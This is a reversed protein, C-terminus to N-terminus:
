RRQEREEFLMRNIKDTSDAQQKFMFVMFVLVSISIFGIWFRAEKM